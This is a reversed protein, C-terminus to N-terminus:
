FYVIDGLEVLDHLIVLISYADVQFCSMVHKVLVRMPCLNPIFSVSVNIAYHVLMQVNSFTRSWLLGM